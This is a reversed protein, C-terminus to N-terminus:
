SNKITLKLKSLQNQLRQIEAISSKQIEENSAFQSLLKSKLNTDM